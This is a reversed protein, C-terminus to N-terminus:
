VPPLRPRHPFPRPRGEQNYSRGGVPAYSHPDFDVGRTDYTGAPGGAHTLSGGRKPQQQVTRNDPQQESRGCALLFASAMGAGGVAGARILSRRGTRQQWIGNLRAM